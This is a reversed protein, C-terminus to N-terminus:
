KKPKDRAQLRLLRPKSEKGVIRAMEDAEEIAPQRLYPTIQGPKRAIELNEHVFLAYDTNYSVIARTSFKEGTQEVKASRKLKGTDVPVVEQSKKKLHEGAKMIGREVGAAIQNKQKGMNVTIAKVGEVIFKTRIRAPM